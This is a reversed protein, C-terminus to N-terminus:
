GITVDPQRNVPLLRHCLIGVADVEFASAPNRPGHRSGPLRPATEVPRQEKLFPQRAAVPCVRALPATAPSPSGSNFARTSRIIGPRSVVGGSHSSAM